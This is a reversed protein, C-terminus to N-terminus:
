ADSPSAGAAAADRSLAAVWAVLLAGILVLALAIPDQRQPFPGPLAAAVRDLARRPEPAPPLPGVRVPAPAARLLARLKARKRRGEAIELVARVRAQFDRRSAATLEMATAALLSSARAPTPSTARVALTGSRAGDVVSLEHPPDFQLADARRPLLYLLTPDALLQRLYSRESGAPILERGHVSVPAEVSFTRDRALSPVVAACVLLTALAGWAALQGWSGRAAAARVRALRRAGRAPLAAPQADASRSWGAAIALGLLAWALVKGPQELAEATSMMVMFAVFGSLAALGVGRAPEPTLMLRRAILAVGGLLAVLFLALGAFGQELLVHLYSSDTTVTKKTGEATAEGATAGGVTGLGKGLPHRAADDVRRRWNKFRLQMSEDSRPHALGELRESLRDSSRSAVAAGGALLVLCAAFVISAGAVRRRSGAAVLLLVAAFVLAIVTAVLPTRGLSAVQAGIGFVAVALGLWRHRPRTVALVAGFVAAPAAVTTLGIAGSLTGITRFSDGYSIVGGRATSFDHEAKAPGIVGRLCAYGLVVALLWLLATVLADRRAAGWFAVASGLAVALYVQTLRLGSLGAHLSPSLLVQFASLVLWASAAGIVVREPTTLRGWVTGAGSPLARALVFAVSGFLAVDLCAAGVGLAQDLSLGSHALAIKVTGELLFAGIAVVLAARPDRYALLLVLAVAGVILVLSPWFVLAALAVLALPATLGLARSAV